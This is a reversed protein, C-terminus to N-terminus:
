GNAPLARAINIIGSVETKDLASRYAEEQRARPLPLHCKRLLHRLPNTKLKLTSWFIVREFGKLGKPGAERTGM